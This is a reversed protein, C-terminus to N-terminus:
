KEAAAEDEGSSTQSAADSKLARGGHGNLAWPLSAKVTDLVEVAFAKGPITLIRRM